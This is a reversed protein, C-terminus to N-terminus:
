FGVRSGASLLWRSRGAIPDLAYALDIRIAPRSVSVRNAGLLLSVGVDSRLDKMAVPAGEPWAYGSDFFCAVGLSVLRLVDDAVFWRGEASLLLSRDGNFQRVPYGRLGSEAGLRLQVEPDLNSGHYYDAKALVLRRDSLKQVFDVRFHAIANEIADNRNRAQWSATGLLFGGASVPFGRRESLFFFLPRGPEGGLAESSMGVFAAAENGLNVDETREFRNVHTLELFSHSVSTLGVQLIGFERRDLGVVDDSYRYGVHVRLATSPLRVVARALEADFHSRTHLLNSVEEGELYLPDLREFDEFSARFSWATELSYFPRVAGVSVDHGDSASSLLTSLAIRSGLLRPDRYFVFTEDRDLGSTYMGRLTKGRGLLNTETAGVGWTWVNGVKALRAEPQTSWSDYALVRVRVRGPSTPSAEVRAERLFPLARLNRETQELSEEDLPDGEHFLLERQIVGEKTDIHLQNAVRYPWMDPTGGGEDDFVDLVRIEISEIIPPEQSERAAVLRGVLVLAVAAQATTAIVRNSPM